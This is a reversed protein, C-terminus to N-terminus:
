QRAKAECLVWECGGIHGVVGLITRPAVSVRTMEPPEFSVNRDVEQKPRGWGRDLIPSPAAVKASHPPHDDKMVAVLTEVASSTHERALESLTRGDELKTRAGGGPNGSQGKEFPMQRGGSHESCDQMLSSAIQIARVGPLKSPSGSGEGTIPLFPAAPRVILSRPLDGGARSGFCPIGGAGVASPGGLYRGGSHDDATMPCGRLKPYEVRRTRLNNVLRHGSAAVLAPLETVRPESEIGVLDASTM